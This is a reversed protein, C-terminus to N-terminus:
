MRPLDATTRGVFCFCIVRALSDGGCCCTLKVVSLCSGSGSLPSLGGSSVRKPLLDDTVPVCNKETMLFMM